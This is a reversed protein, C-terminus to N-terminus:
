IAKLQVIAYYCNQQSEQPVTANPQTFIIFIVLWLKFPVTPHLWVCRKIQRASSLSLVILVILFCEIFKLILDFNINAEKLCFTCTCSPRCCVTFWKWTRPTAKGTLPPPPLSPPPDDAYTSVVAVALGGGARVPVCKLSTKLQFSYHKWWKM